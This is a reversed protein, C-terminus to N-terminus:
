TISIGIVTLIRRSPCTAVHEGSPPVFSFHPFRFFKPAKRRVKPGRVKSITWAGIHVSIYIYISPLQSNQFWGARLVVFNVFTLIASPCHPYWTLSLSFTLHEHFIFGLNRASNTGSGQHHQSSLASQWHQSISQFASQFHVKIM